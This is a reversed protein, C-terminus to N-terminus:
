RLVVACQVGVCQVSAPWLTSVGADGNQLTMDALSIAAGPDALAFFLGKGQADLVAGSGVIVV